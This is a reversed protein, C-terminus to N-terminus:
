VISIRENGPSVDSEPACIRYILRLPAIVVAVAFAGAMACFALVRDTVEGGPLQSRRSILQEPYMPMAPLKVVTDISHVGSRGEDQAWKQALVAAQVRQKAGVPPPRGDNKAALLLRKMEPHENGDVLRQPDRM